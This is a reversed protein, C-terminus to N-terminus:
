RYAPPSRRLLYGISLVVIIILEGGLLIAGYLVAAGLAQHASIVGPGLTLLSVLRLVNVAADLQLINYAYVLLVIFSTSLVLLLSMLLILFITQAPAYPSGYVWRFIQPGLVIGIPILGLSLASLAGALKLYGQIDAFTALSSVRPLLYLRLPFSLLGVFSALTFAASFLGVQVQDALSTLQLIIVRQTLALCITSILIWKAFALMDRLVQWNPTSQFAKSWQSRQPSLALWLLVGGGLPILYNAWLVLESSIGLTLIGLSYILLRGMGAAGTLWSYQNFQSLSQLFSRLSEYLLIITAAWLALRVQTAHTPLGYMIQSLIPALVFATVFLFASLALKIKLGFGLVLFANEQQKIAAYRNYYRLSATNLGFDLVVALAQALAVLSAVIGFNEPLLLRASLVTILFGSGNFLANSLGLGGVHQGLAKLESRM